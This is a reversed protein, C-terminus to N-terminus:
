TCMGIAVARGHSIGDFNYYKELAHGFTHGFNLLMREGKDFEDVEVVSKKINICEVIIGQMKESISNECLIDFLSKSRIM